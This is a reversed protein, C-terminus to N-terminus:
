PFSSGAAARRPACDARRCATSRSNGSIGGDTDRFSVPRGQRMAAALADRANFRALNQRGLLYQDYADANATRHENAGPAGLFQLKLARVVAGAIEDQVKFVDDLTRDYSESWIRADSDVRVLEATIRLRDGSKRVSGELVTSVSLAKGIETLTVQKGKFYFSSTRAPVRLGPIKGLLEILEDSLGDSFYEQDKKESLDAFPLVVVSKATASASNAGSTAAGANISTAPAIAAAATPNPAVRTSLWPKVAMLLAVGVGFVTLAIAAARIGRRSPPTSRAPMHVPGGHEAVRQRVSEVLAPLIRELPVHVADLWQNASLFYELEPPLEAADVRISLVPRKKSSAREVERLVHPSETATKTLVLVMLRCANIAEVIAAAYPAGPRVDRPAIWCQFGAAELAACVQDALAADQSAYSIFVARAGIATPNSPSGMSRSPEASSM